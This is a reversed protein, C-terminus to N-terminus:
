VKGEAIMRAQEQTIPDSVPAPPASYVRKVPPLNKWPKKNLFNHAFLTFEPDNKKLDLHELVCRMLIDHGIIEEYKSYAQEAEKEKEKRPYHKWWSEFCPESEKNSEKINTNTNTNTNASVVRQNSVSYENLTDEMISYGDYSNYKRNNCRFCIVRLNSPHDTGGKSRPLIHDIVPATDYRDRENDSYKRLCVPCNRGKKHEFIYQRYREDNRIDYVQLNEADEKKEMSHIFEHDKTYGVIVHTSMSDEILAGISSVSSEYCKKVDDINEPKKVLVKEIVEGDNLYRTNSPRSISQHKAFNRIVFFAEGSQIVINIFNLRCMLILQEEIDETTLEFDYKFIQSKLFMSDAMCVGSDDAFNWMGKFLNRGMFSLKSVKIDDYFSLKLMRNRPM